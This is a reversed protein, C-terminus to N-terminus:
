TGRAISKVEYQGVVGRLECAGKFDTFNVINSEVISSIGQLLYQSNLELNKMSLSLLKKKHLRVSKASGKDKGM